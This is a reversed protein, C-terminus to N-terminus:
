CALLVYMFHFLVASLFHVETLVAVHSLGCSIHKPRLSRISKCLVPFSRDVFYHLCVIVNAYLTAYLCTNYIKGIDLKISVHLSYFQIICMM